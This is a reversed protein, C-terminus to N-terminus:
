NEMGVYYLSPSLFFILAIISIIFSYKRQTVLHLTIKFKSFNDKGQMQEGVGARVLPVRTHKSTCM